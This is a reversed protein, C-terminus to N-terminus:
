QTKLGLARVLEIIDVTDDAMMKQMEQPSSTIVTLGSDEIKSRVAPDNAAAVFAANLKGIVSDPTGPPAALGFWSALGAKALGIDKLLPVEPAATWKETADSAIARIKKDFIFAKATLSSVMAADLRGSILDTMMPAAGRYHVFQVPANMANMLKAGSLHAPTGLGPSGVNLGGSKAAAVKKLEALSNIPSDAPVAVLTAISFLLSIPKNGKVPDYSVNATMTPVSAHQSIPFVLLTYGDPAASQLASAAVAGSGTPRNEVIINQGLTKSASAAYIRTMVDSVGGAALGVFITIPRNPYEDARAHSPPVTVLFGLLLMLVRLM